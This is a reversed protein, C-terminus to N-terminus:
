VPSTEVIFFVIVFRLIYLRRPFDSLMKKEIAADNAISGGDLVCRVGGSYKLVNYPEPFPCLNFM